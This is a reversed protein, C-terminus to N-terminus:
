VKGDMLMESLVEALHATPQMEKPWVISENATFRAQLHQVTLKAEALQKHLDTILGEAAALKGICSAAEMALGSQLQQLEENQQQLEENQQQLEENQQQLEENQQQLEENQQQLEENEKV